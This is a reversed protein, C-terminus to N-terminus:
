EYVVKRPCMTQSAIRIELNKYSKIVLLQKQFQRVTFHSLVKSSRITIPGVCLHLFICIKKRDIQRGLTSIWEMSQHPSLCFCQGFSIFIYCLCTQFIRNSQRYCLFSPSVSSDQLLHDGHWHYSSLSYKFLAKRTMKLWEFSTVNSKATTVRECECWVSIIFYGKM